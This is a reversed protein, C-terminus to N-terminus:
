EIRRGRNDVEVELTRARVGRSAFRDRMTAAIEAFNDNAFAIMTSGAGSVAVGLLGRHQDTEDNMRLVESM